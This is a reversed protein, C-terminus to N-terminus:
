IKAEIIPFDEPVFKKTESYFDYYFGDKIAPGITVQIEDGYLEKVAQAMIHSCSHRLADIEM